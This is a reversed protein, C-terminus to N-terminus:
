LKMQKILFIMEWAKLMLVSEMPKQGNVKQTRLRKQQQLIIAKRTLHWDLQQPPSVKLILRMVLLNQLYEKLIPPKDGPEVEM